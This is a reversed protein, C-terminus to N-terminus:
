YASKPMEPAFRGDGDDSEFPQPLPPESAFEYYIKMVDDLRYMGATENFKIQTVSNQQLRGMGTGARPAAASGMAASPAAASRKERVGNDMRSTVAEDEFPQPPHLARDLEDANWFWAVGIVGLNKAYDKHDKGGKWKAYSASDESFVFARSTDGGTQWGSVTLSSNPELIWKRASRPSSRKGDVSNLGDISVAVAARVPLPNRLTITYEEGARVKLTPKGNENFEQYRGGGSRSVYADFVRGQFPQQAAPLATALALAGIAMARLTMNRM